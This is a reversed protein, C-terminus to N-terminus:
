RSFSSATQSVVANRAHWWCLIILEGHQALAAVILRSAGLVDSYRPAEGTGFRFCSM